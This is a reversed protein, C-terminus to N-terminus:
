LHICMWRTHWKMMRHWSIYSSLSQIEFKSMYTNQKTYQTDYLSWVVLPNVFSSLSFKKTDLYWRTEQRHEILTESNNLIWDLKNKYIKFKVKSNRKSIEKAPILFQCILVLMLCIMRLIAPFINEWCDFVAERDNSYVFSFKM